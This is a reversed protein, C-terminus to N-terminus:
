RHPLNEFTAPIVRKSLRVKKAGQKSAEAIAVNRMATFEENEKSDKEGAGLAAQMSKFNRQNGLGSAAVELKKGFAIWPPPGASGSPRRGSKAYKQMTRALEWKEVISEVRGGLLQLDSSKLILYGSMLQLRESKLWVKTGPPVNLSLAAINELELALLSNVGDSFEIMLFRPAVKSDENAKPAAINRIKQIQLVINGQLVDENRKAPM